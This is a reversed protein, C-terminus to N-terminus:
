DGCITQLVTQAYVRAMFDNTHNVNNGTMDFYRKTKLIEKHIKTVDAFCINTKGAKKYKEILQYYEKAFTEQNGSFGAVEPNALMTSILCIDVNPNQEWIKDVIGEINLIHMTSSMAPDNMGFALFVVDPHEDLVREKYHLTGDNSSWGGVATNIYKAKTASYKNTLSKFVMKPWIEALPAVGLLESSNGGVTISDGYFLIKVEENNQLKTVTRSFSDKQSVPKSIYNKKNHRYTVVVQHTSIYPGESFFIYAEDNRTCDFAKGDIKHSPYYESTPFYPMKSGDLRVLSNTMKDFIYDEGEKYEDLLSYSRVSLIETAPYMLPADEDGVFMVTENYVIEGEWFPKMYLSLDYKDHKLVEDHIIITGDEEIDKENIPTCGTFVVLLLITILSIIKKM